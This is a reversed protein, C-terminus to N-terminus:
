EIAKDLDDGDEAVEVPVVEFSLCSRGLGAGLSHESGPTGAALICCVAGPLFPLSGQRVAAPDSVPGNVTSAPPPWLELADPLALPGSRGGDADDNRREFGGVGTM